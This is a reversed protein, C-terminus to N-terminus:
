KRKAATPIRQGPYQVSNPKLNTTLHVDALTINRNKVIPLIKWYSMTLQSFKLYYKEKQSLWSFSLRCECCDSCSDFKEGCLDISQICM